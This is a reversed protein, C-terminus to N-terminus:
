PSPDQPLKRPTLTVDDNDDLRGDLTDTQGWMEYRITFRSSDNLDIQGAYMRVLPPHRPWGSIVDIVYTRMAQAPPKTLTAPAIAGTNYNYGNLFSAVFTNTDPFYRVCVLRRHGSASVREHLFAVAGYARGWQIMTTAVNNASEFRPWCAPVFAAANIPSGTAPGTLSGRKLPYPSYQPDGALLKAAITPDEEYVIQDAPATYRLCQRQWYLLRAQHWAVGGWRWSAAGIVLLIILAVSRHLWKRRKPPAPAYDLQASATMTTPM